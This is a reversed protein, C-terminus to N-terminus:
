KLKPMFMTQFRVFAFKDNEPILFIEECSIKLIDSLNTEKAKYVVFFHWDNCLIDLNTKFLGDLAKIMNTINELIEHLFQNIRINTDLQEELSKIKIKDMEQILGVICCRILGWRGEYLECFKPNLFMDTYLEKVKKTSLPYVIKLDDDTSYTVVKYKEVSEKANLTLLEKIMNLNEQEMAKVKGELNLNESKEYSEEM